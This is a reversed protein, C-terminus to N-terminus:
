ATPTSWIQTRFKCIIYDKMAERSVGENPLDVAFWLMEDFLDPGLVRIKSWPATEPV